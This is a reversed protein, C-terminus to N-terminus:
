LYAKLYNGTASNEVTVVVEPSGQAVVNGGENGGGPGLDIIYDATKIVELNHEIVIVTNGEDVLRNICTLLKQIDDLHLGITPEDLIYLNNKLRKIKGLEQALKIRQAEGGSLTASSQGLTLYGLGLESMTKLKHRILRVNKFFELGEEVTMNLVESINKGKYQIELVDKNFRQGNCEPCVAIVDPMYQIESRIEGEGMCHICRGGNKNNFSFTNSQYGRIKAEPVDAFLNRIKDFFGIYTAPNSRSSRGIPSQDIKRVEKITEYGKLSEHKGPIIRKDKLLYHLKKYLIENILSSKGSGSVGSICVFIGLPIRVNINQLNNEQAGLIELFHGNSHRRQTPCHIRKKGALYQGTLSSSVKIAKLNGEFTIQGGYIGPGPGIEILHDASEMTEIDHEVVIVTNGLDRLDQLTTILKRSDIQHLGISPEDLIYMMGMLESGIQTSLITRQMEGGSLTDSRRDLSLYNLGIKNLIRIRKVLQDVVPQGLDIKDKPLSVNTLFTELEKFPMTLVDQISLQNIKIYLRNPHLKLGRCDPCPNEIMLRRTHKDEVTGVVRNKSGFNKYWRNIGHILGQYTRKKGVSPDPKICHDPPQKIEFKEGQTGYFLIQKIKNPLEKFPIDLSFDYHQSLSYALYYTPNNLRKFTKLSMNFFSHDLAGERISLNENEILLQPEALMTSGIGQCTICASEPDNPTFYWPLFEGAITHHVPCTLSYISELDVQCNNQNQIEIIIFKQGFILAANLSSVIQKYQDGNIVFKDILVEIQTIKFEDIDLENSTDVLKGDLKVKRFGANRASDLVYQLPEDFVKNVVARIEVVTNQPLALIKEAIQASSKISIENTCYPCYATGILSFLLRVYSGIDTLTGVTSRPNSIGKRQQISVVPSLGLIMNVDPKKVSPLHTRSWASLSELFRRHGEAFLTDFVLSSKGSGSVGTIVTLKNRPIELSVNKLNNERAGIIEISERM